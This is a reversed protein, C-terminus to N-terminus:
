FSGTQMISQMLGTKSFQPNHDMAIQLNELVSLERFLRINQFTRAVGYRSIVFPKLRDIRKGSTSIAGHTPRYVGTIMNFVTTKGAGNPGILGFISGTPVALNLDTVAKLGGFEITLNQLDLARDINMM